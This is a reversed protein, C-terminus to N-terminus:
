RLYMRSVKMEEAGRFHGSVSDKQVKIAMLEGKYRGEYVDGFSGKGIRSPSNHMREFLHPSFPEYGKPTLIELNFVNLLSTKRFNGSLDFLGLERRIQRSWDPESTAATANPSNTKKGSPFAGTM